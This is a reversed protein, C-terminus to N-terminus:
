NNLEQEELIFEVIDSLGSSLGLTQIRNQIESFIEPNQTITDITEIMENPDPVFWGVKNNVVYDVNGQEQGYLRQTLILPRELMLAEFITAPGAKTIVIDAANMLEYVKDTFGFTKIPISSKAAIENVADFQRYNKGAVFALEGDYNTSLLKELYREGRPFGEGGGLFLFLKKNPDFGQDEKFQAIASADMKKAFRPNIIPQFKHISSNIYQKRGKKYPLAFLWLLKRLRKKIRESFVVMKTFQRYSWLPHLTFPDTVVTIVPIDMRGITELAKRLIRTLLFHTSVIKTVKNQLIYRRVYAKSYISMLWTHLDMVMPWASIRYIIPWLFRVRNTSFTYGGEVLIRQLSNGPRFGDLISLKAKGQTQRDVEAILAKCASIHGGGTPLYMFLIHENNKDMKM